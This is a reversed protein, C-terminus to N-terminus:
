KTQEEFRWAQQQQKRKNKGASEKNKKKAWRHTGGTESTYKM